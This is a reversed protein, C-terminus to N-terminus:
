ARMCSVDQDRACFVKQEITLTVNFQRIKTKGLVNNVLVYMASEEKTLVFM